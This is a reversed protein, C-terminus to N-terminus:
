INAMIFNVVREDDKEKEDEEDGDEGRFVYYLKTDSVHLLM